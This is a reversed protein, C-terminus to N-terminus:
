PKLDLSVMGTEMDFPVSSHSHTITWRGDIKRCCLTARWCMDLKVGDTKIGIVRNIGHCFAVDSGAAVELGSIEFGIHGEFSSFWETLRQRLMDTGKFELPNVVDYAVVDSAYYSILADVDKARVAVAWADILERIVGNDDILQKSEAAMINGM